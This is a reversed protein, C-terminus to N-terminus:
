VSLGSPWLALVLGCVIAVDALNFVPWWGLDIFDVVCRLRLIDVLNGAAGGLAAAFGLMATHSQLRDGSGEGPAGGGRLARDRPLPHAHCPHQEKVGQRNRPEPFSDREPVATLKRIVPKSASGSCEKATHSMLCLVLSASKAYQFPTRPSCTAGRRNSISGAFIKEMRDEVKM